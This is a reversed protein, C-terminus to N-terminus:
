LLASSVHSHIGAEWEGVVRTRLASNAHVYPQLSNALNVLNTLARDEGDEDEQKAYRTIETILISMKDYMAEQTIANELDSDTAQERVESLAERLSIDPNEELMKELRHRTSKHFRELVLHAQYIRWLNLGRIVVFDKPKPPPSVEPPLSATSEAHEPPRRIRTTATLEQPGPMGIVVAPADPQPDKEKKYDEIDESENYYAFLQIIGDRKAEEWDDLRLSCRKGTITQFLSVYGCFPTDERALVVVNGNSEVYKVVNEALAVGKKIGYHPSAALTGSIFSNRNELAMRKEERLFPDEGEDSDSSRVIGQEIDGSDRLRVPRRRTEREEEEEDRRQKEEFGKEVSALTDALYTKLFDWVSMLVRCVFHLDCPSISKSKRLFKCEFKNSVFSSGEIM